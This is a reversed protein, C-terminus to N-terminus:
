RKRPPPIAPVLAALADELIDVHEYLADVHGGFGDDTESDFTFLHKPENAAAFLKLSHSYPILTDERSHTIVVPM